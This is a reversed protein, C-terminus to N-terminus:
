PGVVTAQDLRRMLLSAFALKELAERDDLPKFQEHADPNRIGKVAGMFLFRFGAQINKGTDHSLDALALRPKDDSFVRGMLAAGDADVGTMAKVRNNVAKFSEFIAVEMHESEIYRRSVERVEAHLAALRAERGLPTLAGIADHSRPGIVLRGDHVHWGQNALVASIRKQVDPLPPAHHRGELWGGIFERLARRGASGGDHLRELVDFVYEWKSGDFAAPIFQDPIGSDRLYRPLQSGTYTDGIARAIEELTIGTIPRDDDENPDPLPRLVLRGRARDRGELTLRLDRIEQLWSQPQVFPDSYPLNPPMQDNWSLYGADHALVLERAFPVEDHGWRIERGESAKQLLATGNSLYVLQESEELEDIMKLLQLDDWRM